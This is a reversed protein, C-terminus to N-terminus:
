PTLEQANNTLYIHKNVLLTPDGKTHQLFDKFAIHIHLPVM